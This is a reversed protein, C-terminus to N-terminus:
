RKLITTIIKAKVKAMVKKDTFRGVLKLFFFNSLENPCGALPMKTAHQV